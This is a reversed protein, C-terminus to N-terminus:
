HPDFGSHDEWDPDGPLPRDAMKQLKPSLKESSPSNSRIELSTPSYVFVREASNDIAVMGYSRLKDLIDEFTTGPDFVIGPTSGTRARVQEYTLFSGAEEQKEWLAWYCLTLPTGRRNPTEM